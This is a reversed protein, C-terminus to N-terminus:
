SGASPSGEQEALLGRLPDVELRRAEWHEIEALLDEGLPDDPQRSAVRITHLM